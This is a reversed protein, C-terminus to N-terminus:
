DKKDGGNEGIPPTTPKDKKEEVKQTEEKKVETKKQENKKLDNAKKQKEIEAKKRKEEEEKKKQEEAIQKQKQVDPAVSANSTPATQIPTVAVTEAPKLHNFLSVDIGLSEADRVIATYFKQKDRQNPYQKINQLLTALTNRKNDDALIRNLDTAVEQQQTPNQTGNETVFQTPEVQSVDSTDKEANGFHGTFFFTLATLGLAVASISAIHFKKASQQRFNKFKRDLDANERKLEGNEMRLHTAEDPTLPKGQPTKPTEIPKEKYPVYSGNELHYFPFMEKGWREQTRKLHALDDSFYLRSTNTIEDNLNTSNKLVDTVLFAKVKNNVSFNNFHNYEIKDLLNEQKHNTLAKWIKEADPLFDSTKFKVGNLSEQAFSKKAAALISLNTESIKIDRESLLAVGYISGAIRSGSFAQALSYLKLLSYTKGNKSFVYKSLLQLNSIDDVTFVKSELEDFDRIVDNFDNIYNKSDFAHFSFDQSKGFFILYTNNM